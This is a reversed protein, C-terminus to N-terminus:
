IFIKLSWLAGVIVVATLTKYRKQRGKKILIFHYIDVVYYIFICIIYTYM